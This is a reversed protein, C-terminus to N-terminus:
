SAPPSSSPSFPKRAEAEAEVPTLGIDCLGQDCLTMLESRGRARRQWEHMQLGFTTLRDRAWQAYAEFLSTQRSYGSSISPYNQLRM